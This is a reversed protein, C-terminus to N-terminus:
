ELMELVAEPPRGIAARHGSIVVPREILKPSAAMAAILTMDDASRDLGKAEPESWRMLDTAPRGLLDLAARLEAITPPDDLYLRVRPTLGREQLLSLAARSKSCRPNHWIVLDSM